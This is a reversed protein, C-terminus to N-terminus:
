HAVMSPITYNAEAPPNSTGLEALADPSPLYQPSAWASAMASFPFMMSVWVSTMM